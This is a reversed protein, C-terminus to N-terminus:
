SLVAQRGRNENVRFLLLLGLIFFLLTSLIAIRHNGKTVFALFGYALPGIVAALKVAMGWLGFFEGQRGLPTFQGVLARGASQTSGMAVGVLNAAIWFQWVDTALFAVLIAVIWVALALTLAKISGIRDQLVGFLFAGVAATINVVMILVITDNTKFGFVQQAYIAALVIVTHIGCYYVTMSVLLRFLDKFKSAESFTDGLEKFAKTVTQTFVPVATGFEIEATARERLWIFTPLVALAFIGATILMTVPVYQAPAQGGAQAMSVYVLCIGLVLMGGFYGLSWGYGSLRGLYEPPALEPLFAAILNEGSAFMITAIIVLFMAFAVDGPQVLALLATFLICGVSTIALFQKKMASVDALAGLVPATILVILNAVALSISWLLTGTGGDGGENASQTVVASVFYVNFVATLVVTTYGSNAFDYMAWAWLERKPALKHTSRESFTSM